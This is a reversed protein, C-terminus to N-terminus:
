RQPSVADVHEIREKPPSFSWEMSPGFVGLYQFSAIRVGNPVEFAVCGTVHRGVVLIGEGATLGRCGAVVVFCSRARGHGACHWKVNYIHRITGVAVAEISPAYAFTTNGSNALNLEVGVM